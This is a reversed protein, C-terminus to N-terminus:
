SFGLVGGLYMVMCVPEPAGRRGPGPGQRRRHPDVGPGAGPPRPVRVGPCRSPPGCRLSGPTQTGRQTPRWQHQRMGVLWDSALPPFCVLTDSRFRNPTLRSISFGDCLTSSHCNLYHHSPLFPTFQQALFILFHNLYRVPAIRFRNPFEPTFSPHTKGPGRGCDSKSDIAKSM